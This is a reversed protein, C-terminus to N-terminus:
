EYKLAEMPNRTAARWSQWSVTLIAVTVAVAGAVAFVWWSLETKYAFNQLWKHMAYWAIPCAIIFAIAVWKIFDKNLMALIETVRAGNVKRIGIEKIRGNITFLSLGFLGLCCLFLAIITLTNILQAMRAENRYNKEFQEDMFYYVIPWNSAVKIWEKRIISLGDSINGGALKIIINKSYDYSDQLYFLAPKVASHITNFEIDRVVGIIKYKKNNFPIDPLDGKPQEARILKLLNETIIINNKDGESERFGRGEIFNVGLASFYGNDVSVLGIGNAWNDIMTGPVNKGASVMKIQAYKELNRKFTQYRGVMPYEWPNEVIVLQDKNFGLDRHRIFRMQKNITLALLILIIGITFQVVVFSDRIKGTLFTNKGPKLSTGAVGKLVGSINTKNALIIPYISIAVLIILSIALIFLAIPLYNAIGISLNKNFYSNLSPLLMFFSIFSFIWSILIYVLVENVVKGILVKKGAGLVKNIGTEINHKGMIATTLNVFNFCGIILIFIAIVAIVRINTINSYQSRESYDGSKLYIDKFPQAILKVGDGTTGGNKDKISNWLDTLKKDLSGKSINTVSKLYFNCNFCGWSNLCQQNGTFFTPFPIIIEPKIHSQDPFNKFIGTITLNLNNDMKIMKGIPSQDGFYERAKRQSIVASLPATLVTKQNGQVLPWNFFSFFNSDAFLVGKVIQNNVGYGINVDYFRLRVGSAIEPISKLIEDM